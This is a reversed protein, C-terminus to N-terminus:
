ETAGTLNIPQRYPNPTIIKGTGYKGCGCEGEHWAGCRCDDMERLVPVGHGADWGQAMLERASEQLRDSSNKVMQALRNNSKTLREITEAPTEETDSM